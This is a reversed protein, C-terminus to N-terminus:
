PAVDRSEDAARAESAAAPVPEAGETEAHAPELLAPEDAEADIVVAVKEPRTQLTTNIRKQLLQVFRDRGNPDDAFYEKVVDVHDDPVGHRKLADLAGGVLQDVVVANFRAAVLAFRGPPTRFDGEYLM